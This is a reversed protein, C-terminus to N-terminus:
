YEWYSNGTKLFVKGFCYKRFEELFVKMAVIGFLAAYGCLYFIGFFILQNWNHNIVAFVICVLMLLRFIGYIISFAKTTLGAVISFVLTLLYLPLFLVRMLIRMKTEECENNSKGILDSKLHFTLKPM